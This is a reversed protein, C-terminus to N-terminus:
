FRPFPPIFSDRSFTGVFQGSRRNYAELHTWNRYKYSESLWISAKYCNGVFPMEVIIFGGNFVRLSYDNKNKWIQNM